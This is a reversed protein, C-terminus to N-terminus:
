ICIFLVHRYIHINSWYMFTFVILLFIYIIYPAPPDNEASSSPAGFLWTMKYEHEAQVAQGQNIQICKYNPNESFCVRFHLECAPNENPLASPRLTQPLSTQACPPILKHKLGLEVPLKETPISRWCQGSNLTLPRPKLMNILWWSSPTMGLVLNSMLHSLKNKTKTQTKLQLIGWFPQWGLAM